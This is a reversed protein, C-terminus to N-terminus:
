IITERVDCPPQHWKVNVGSSSLLTLQSFQVMRNIRSPTVSDSLDQWKSIVPMLLPSRILGFGDWNISENNWNKRYDERCSFLESPYFTSARGDIRVNAHRVLVRVFRGHIVITQVPAEFFFWTPVTVPM